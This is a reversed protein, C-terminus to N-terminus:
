QGRGFWRGNAVRDVIGRMCTMRECGVMTASAESEIRGSDCPVLSWTFLAFPMTCDGLPFLSLLKHPSGGPALGFVQM